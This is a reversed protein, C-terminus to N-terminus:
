MADADKDIQNQDETFDKTIMEQKKESYLEQELLKIISERKSFHWNGQVRYETDYVVGNEDLIKEDNEDFQPTYFYCLDEGDIDIEKGNLTLTIGDRPDFNYYNDDREIEYQRDSIAEEVTEWFFDSQLSKLLNNSIKNSNIANLLIDKNLPEENVQSVFNFDPNPDKIIIFIDDIDTLDTIGIEKQLKEALYEQPNSNYFSRKIDIDSLYIDAYKKMNNNEYSKIKITM